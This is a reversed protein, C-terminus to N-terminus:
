YPHPFCNSYSPLRLWSIIVDNNLSGLHGLIGLDPDVQGTYHTVSSGCGISLMGIHVLLKNIDFISAPFLRPHSILSLWSTIADNGSWLRGLCGEDPALKVLAITHIQVWIGKLCCVVPEFVKYIDLISTPLLKFLIAAEVM